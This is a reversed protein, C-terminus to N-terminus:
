NLSGRCGEVGCLCPIKEDEIPFHYDYTIEDGPSIETKAYIIIKKEGLITIIKATCNPQCCHNILRAVSGKM